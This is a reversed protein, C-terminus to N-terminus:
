ENYNGQLYNLEIRALNADRELDILNKQTQVLRSKALILEVLGSGALKYGEEYLALLEHQQNQLVRLATHREASNRLLTNLAKVRVRQSRDIQEADLDNQRAKLRTLRARQDGANFFPLAMSVGVRAIAQDPEDEYEGYLNWERLAYAQSDAEARFSQSRGHALAVDPSDFKAGGHWLKPAYVFRAELPVDMDLGALTLLNFYAADRQQRWALKRNEATTREMTAQLKEAKTAAGDAYREAAIQEFRKAIAIETDAIGIMRDAHVYATYARELAAIFGARGQLLASQALRQQADKRAELADGLGPVRLPQSLAVRWGNEESGAKADFRSAEVELTPNGYMLSLKGEEAAIDRQMAFSQLQPSRELVQKKFTEFEMANLSLTLLTMLIWKM